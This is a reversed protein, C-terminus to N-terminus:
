NRVFPFYEYDLTKDRHSVGVSLRGLFSTERWLICPNDIVSTSRLHSGIVKRRIWIDRKIKWLPLARTIRHQGCVLHQGDRCLAIHWWQM